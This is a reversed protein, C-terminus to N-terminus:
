FNALGQLNEAGQLLWSSVILAITVGQYFAAMATNRFVFGRPLVAVPAEIEEVLRVADGGRGLAEKWAQRLGGRDRARAATDANKAEANSVSFPPDPLALRGIGNVILPETYSVGLFARFRRSLTELDDGEQEIGQEVCVLHWISATKEPNGPQVRIARGRMQNSLMYSGVFSALILCNMAPADWGEGLLAKTGVLANISGEEFLDTVIRVIGSLQDSGQSVVYYDQDHELPEMRVSRADIGLEKAIAVFRADCSKPVIVLTGSIAALRLGEINLRRITEFISSVGIRTPAWEEDRDGPLESRRIYDSLVVLRLEPGLSESEIKVIEAISKLKSLSWTLLRRIQTTNRLLVKRREIGGIKRLKAEIEKALPEHEPQAAVEDFLFGTLTTELWEANLRPLKENDVGIVHILKKPVKVGVSSLFVAIASLYHPDALIEEAYEDSRQVWPHALLAASFASDRRLDDVFTEVERRFQSIRRAEVEQPLSLYVYDQHFCLNGEKVLEPVAIEADVPGCMHIYRDWEWPSVDYPPTATLAVITVDILGAVTETLSKWWENRLHHCEDVILTKFGHRNLLGAIDIRATPEQGPPAEDVSLDPGDDDAHDNDEDRSPGATCVSHLLQYTAVTVFEPRRIDTSIWGPVEWGDPLFDSTLREIWQDRIALTPSLILTPGGLTRAIEIGLVTKGSGPAAVVHIHQDQVHEGSESLVRAQYPRWTKKFGM